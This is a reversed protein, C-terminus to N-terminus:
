VADAAAQPVWVWKIVDRRRMMRQQQQIQERQQDAKELSCELLGKLRVVENRLSALEEESAM